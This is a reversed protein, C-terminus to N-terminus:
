RLGIQQLFDFAMDSVGALPGDDRLQLTAVVPTGSKTLDGLDGTTLEPSDVRVKTAAQGNETAVEITSVTGAISANNPLLITAQAGKAVRGYDRPSLLYRADVYQSNTITIKAFPEGGGLSNGLRAQLDGVQGAVTARYTLTGKSTDVDYADSSQIKLGNAVDQQLSVSQVTFLKDGKAVSDGDRVYQRTVTGGYAAGVSYMDANITASLSAAKTQRQNFILALVAVLVIVGLLGALLRLRNIWTM